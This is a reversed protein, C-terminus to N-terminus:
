QKDHAAVPHDVTEEHVAAFQGFWILDDDDHIVESGSTTASAYSADERVIPKRDSGCLDLRLRGTVPAGTLGASSGLAM